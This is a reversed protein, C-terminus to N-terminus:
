DPLFLGPLLFGLLIGVEALLTVAAAVILRLATRNAVAGPPPVGAAPEGAPPLSGSRESLLRRLARTTELGAEWGLFLVSLAVVPPWPLGVWGLAQAALLLLAYGAKGRVAWAIFAALKRSAELAGRYRGAGAWRSGRALIYLTPLMGAAAFDTLLVALTLYRLLLKM